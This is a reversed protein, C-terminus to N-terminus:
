TPKQLDEPMNTRTTDPRLLWLVLPLQAYQQGM